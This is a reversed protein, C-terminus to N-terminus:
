FQFYIFSTHGTFWIGYAVLVLVFAQYVLLRGYSPVRQLYRTLTGVAHMKEVLLLLAILGFAFYLKGVSPITLLWDSSTLQNILQMFNEAHFLVKVPVVSFTPEIFTMGPTAHSFVFLKHFIQYAQEMDNARFFVYSLSVLVFTRLMRLLDAIQSPAKKKKAKFIRGWLLEVVLMVGHMLGWAVFTWKAGHWVGSILFTVILAASLGGYGWYRWQIALPEYVYDRLWTSLSIHWRKWFESLSKSLFPLNFNKMLDFGLMRASGIAIDSYGSFDCYIQFYFFIVALAVSVSGYADPNAFVPNVYAALRDAIVVKKFLGWALLMLGSRFTTPNFSIKKHFQFLMNQPREIPGAVLQPFFMVYLSYIGFHYEPKQKGRYVEIVYSLSQFTHFSLGIPLILGLPSMAFTGGWAHSLWNVNLAVFDFYKFFFLILCTVVISGYLYLDKRRGESRHILIGAAYDVVITTFLILIYYPIFAMYFVCSAFLLMKWRYSHPLVYFLGLVIPFFILFEWSNFLM